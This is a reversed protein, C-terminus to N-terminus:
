IDKDLAPAVLDCRFLEEALEEFAAPIDWPHDDGILQLAVPRRLPLNERPHFMPLVAIEVIAGLIGMLWGALPLAAHLPEFRWSVGLAEQGRITGNGLVKAWTSMM